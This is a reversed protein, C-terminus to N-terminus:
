RKLAQSVAFKEKTDKMYVSGLGKYYKKVHRKFQGVHYLLLELEEKAQGYKKREAM